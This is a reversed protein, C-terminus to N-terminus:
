EAAKKEEAAKEDQKEKPDDFRVSIIKMLEENENLDHNKDLDGKPVTFELLQRPFGESYNDEQPVKIVLDEGKKNIQFKSQYQAYALQDVKVYTYNTTDIDVIKDKETKINM